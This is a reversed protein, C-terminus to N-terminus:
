LSVDLTIEKVVKIGQIMTAMTVYLTSTSFIELTRIYIPLGVYQVDNSLNPHTGTKELFPYFYHGQGM